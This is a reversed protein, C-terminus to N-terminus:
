RKLVWDLRPQLLPRFVRGVVGSMLVIALATAGLAVAVANYIGGGAMTDFFNLHALLLVVFGHLLYCYLTRQGFASFWATGRPVLSLVALSLVFGLVLLSGRTLIGVVPDALLPSEDYSDNFYLWSIIWEQNQMQCVALTAALAVVSAARVWARSLMEFHERRLYLGAVYFPLFALVRKLALVNDIDSLGATLSVVVAIAVPWRVATWFPTTLRWIFLAAIFWTLWNPSLLDFNVPNGSFYADTLDLAINTLVYPVVLTSVMRKVQRADGVYNRATYGSILIFAPMHFTFIWTYVGRVQPLEQMNTLFHGVVVLLMVWFRANDLFPDRVKDRPKNPTAELTSLTAGPGTATSTMGEVTPM